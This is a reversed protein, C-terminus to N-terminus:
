RATSAASQTPVEKMHIPRPIILLVNELKEAVGNTIFFCNGISTRWTSESSPAVVLFHDLPVDCRLNVDYLKQPAAFLVEQENNLPSFQIRKRMSRVVPCMAVRMTGTKRPAPQLTLTVANEGEDFSEGIMANTSDFYCIDQAPLNKRLPLEIPKGEAAVLSSSKTVAPYQEMLRRFHDWERTSAQGVRVGNKYLLDYTAVDVAHEDIRKWFEDNRSVTGLPVQLLFLDVRM